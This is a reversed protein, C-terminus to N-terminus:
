RPFFFIFGFHPRKASLPRRCLPRQRPSKAIVSLLEPFCRGLKASRLQVPRKVFFNKKFFLFGDKGVAKAWPERCLIKKEFFYFFMKASPRQWPREACPKKEFFFLFGGRQRHGLRSATPLSPKL